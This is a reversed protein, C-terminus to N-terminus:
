ADAFIHIRQFFSLIPVIWFKLSSPRRKVLTASFTSQRGHLLITADEDLEPLMQEASAEENYNETRFSPLGIEVPIVAEVGFAMAFPTEGTATRRTTRYAWLVRPLEDIWAGKHKELNKKLNEKITKNAAEVQGNSQPHGPSSFM